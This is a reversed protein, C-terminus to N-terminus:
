MSSHSRLHQNTARLVSTCSFVEPAHELRALGIVFKYRGKPPFQYYFHFHLVGKKQMYQM